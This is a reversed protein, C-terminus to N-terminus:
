NSSNKCDIQFLPINNSETKTIDLTIKSLPILRLWLDQNNQIDCFFEESLKIVHLRVARQLTSIVCVFSFNGFVNTNWSSMKCILSHQM